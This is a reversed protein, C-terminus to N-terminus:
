PRGLAVADVEDGVVRMDAGLVDLADLDVHHQLRAHDDHRFGIRDRGVASEADEEAVGEDHGLGPVFDDVLEREFDGDRCASPSVAREYCGNLKRGSRRCSSATSAATLSHGPPPPTPPSPAAVAM